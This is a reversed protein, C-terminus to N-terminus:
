NILLVAVQVSKHGTPQCIASAIPASGLATTMAIKIALLAATHVGSAIGALAMIIPGLLIRNLSKITGPSAVDNTQATIEM